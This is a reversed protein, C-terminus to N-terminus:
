GMQIICAELCRVKSDKWPRLKKQKLTESKPTPKCQILEEISLYTPKGVRLLVAKLWNQIGPSLIKSLLSKGM